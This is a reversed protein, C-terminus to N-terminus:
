LRRIEVFASRKRGKRRGFFYVLAILVVGGVAALILGNNKQAGAVEEADGKLQRLKTEIDDRTIRPAEATTM